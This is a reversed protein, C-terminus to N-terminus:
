ESRSYGSSRSRVITFSNKAISGAIRKARRRDIWRTMATEACGRALLMMDKIAWAAVMIAAVLVLTTLWFPAVLVVVACALSDKLPEGLSKSREM